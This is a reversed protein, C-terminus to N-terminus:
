SICVKGYYSRGPTHWLAPPMWLCLYFIIKEFITVGYMEEMPMIWLFHDLHFIVKYLLFIDADLIKLHFNDVFMGWIFTSAAMWKLGKIVHTSLIMWQTYTLFLLGLFSLSLFSLFPVCIPYVKKMFYQICQKIHLYKHFMFTLTNQANSNAIWSGTWSLLFWRFTETNSM